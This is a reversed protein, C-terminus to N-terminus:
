SGGRCSVAQATLTGAHRAVQSGISPQLTANRIASPRYDQKQECRHLLRTSLLLQADDARKRDALNCRRAVIAM